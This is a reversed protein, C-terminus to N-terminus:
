NLLKLTVTPHLMSLCAANCIMTFPLRAMADKDEQNRDQFHQLLLRTIELHGDAAACYLATIDYMDEPNKCQIHQLLLRTIELDGKFAAIFLPTVGTKSKPNKDQSHQLLLRAIELDGKIAAQHLPTKGDKDEPNKDNAYQLILFVTPRDGVVAATHLATWGDEDAPNNNNAYDRIFEVVIKQHDNQGDAFPIQCVKFFLNKFHRSMDEYDAFLFPRCQNFNHLNASKFHGCLPLPPCLPKAHPHLIKLFNSKKTSIPEKLMWVFLLRSIKLKEIFITWFIQNKFNSKNKSICMKRNPYNKPKFFCVKVHWLEAM